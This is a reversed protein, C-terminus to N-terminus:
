CNGKKAQGPPCHKGPSGTKIEVPPKVEIEPGKLVCGGFALAVVSALLLYAIAVLARRLNIPGIAM